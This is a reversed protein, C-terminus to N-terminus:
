QLNQSKVTGDHKVSPFKQGSQPDEQEAHEHELFREPQQGSSRQLGQDAPERVGAGPGQGGADAGRRHKLGTGRDRNPKERFISARARGTIPM